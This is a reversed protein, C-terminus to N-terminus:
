RGGRGFGLRSPRQVDGDGNGIQRGWDATIAGVDDEDDGLAPQSGIHLATFIM